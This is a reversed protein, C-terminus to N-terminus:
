PAPIGTRSSGRYGYAHLFARAASALRAEDGDTVSAEALERAEVHLPLYELESMAIDFAAQRDAAAGDRVAVYLVDFCRELEPGGGM